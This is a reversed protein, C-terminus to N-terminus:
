RRRDGSRQGRGDAEERIPALYEVETTKPGVGPPAIALCEVGVQLVAGCAIQRYIDLASSAEHGVAGPAKGSRVQREPFCPKIPVEALTPERKSRSGVANGAEAPRINAGIFPFALQDLPQAQQMIGPARLLSVPIPGPAEVM